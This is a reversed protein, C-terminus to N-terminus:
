EAVPASKPHGLVAHATFNTGGSSTGASVIALRQFRKKGISGVRLPTDDDADTFGTLVGLTDAAPVVTSSTFGVVDDEELLLAYTGDTITGSQIMYELSEFGLTDIVNGDTTANTTIDQVDLAIL